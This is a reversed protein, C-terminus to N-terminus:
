LKQFKAWPGGIPELAMKRPDWAIPLRIKTMDLTVKFNKIITAIAFSTNVMAFRM